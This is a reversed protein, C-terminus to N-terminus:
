VHLLSSKGAGDQKGRSLISEAIFAVAWAQLRKMKGLWATEVELVGLNCQSLALRLDVNRFLPLYLSMCLLGCRSQAAAHRIGSLQDPTLPMPVKRPGNPVVLVPAMCGPVASMVSSGCAVTCSQVLHIVRSGACVTLGTM